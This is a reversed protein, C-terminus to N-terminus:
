EPEVDEKKGPKGRWFADFEDWTVEHKGMWFGKVTVPHQPGEDAARGKEGEPSGMLYTGGPIAVMDFKVKEGPITETYGKHTHKEVVPYAGAKDAQAPTLFTMALLLAFAATGAAHQILRRM